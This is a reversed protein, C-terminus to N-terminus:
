GGCGRRGVGGEAGGGDGGDVVGHICGASGVGVVQGENGEGCRGGKSEGCRGGEM